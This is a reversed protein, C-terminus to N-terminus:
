RYKWYILPLSLTMGLCFVPFVYYAPLHPFGGFTELFGWLTSGSLAMASGWLLQQIVKARQVEDTEEIIYRGLAWIIFLVPLAPLSAVIWRSPEAVWHRRFLEIVGVLTAAYAAM